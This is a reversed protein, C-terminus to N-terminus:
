GLRELAAFSTAIKIVSAPNFSVDSHHDAFVMSGDLSEILFGQSELNFGRLTLQNLYLSESVTNFREPGTVKAEGTVKREAPATLEQAQIPWILLLILATTLPLYKKMMMRLTYYWFPARIKVSFNVISFRSLRRLGLTKHIKLTAGRE